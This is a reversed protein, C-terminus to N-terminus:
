RSGPGWIDRVVRALFLPNGIVYRRWLRAPEQALRFVWEVGLRNMWGPARVVESAQFDFFAGVGIGVVAGTEALHDTLWLEQMPNGMAVMVLKAGAAAIAAVDAAPDGGFGDRTGVVDLTPIRERVNRAATAAVGPRGGLFFVPWGEGAALELLRLNFDSGNLNERFSRGRLRAAIAVGVGDNLVFESRRLAERLEPTDVSINMTHANVYFVTFPLGRGVAGAVAALVEDGDRDDVEVGLISVPCV